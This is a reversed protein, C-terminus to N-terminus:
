HSNFLNLLLGGCSSTICGSFCKADIKFLYRIRFGGCSSVLCGLSCNADIKFLVHILFWWLLLCPLWSILKCWNQILASYSVVVPPPLAALLANQMLKSYSNFLFGGCSSALCGSCCKADIKFSFQILQILFWWLLLCPLWFLMKCWNSILISHSVAVPIALCGPSCKVNIKFLLRILFSWQLLCPLWSLM